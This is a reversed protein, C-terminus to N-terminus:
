EDIGDRLRDLHSLVVSLTADADVYGREYDAYAGDVDSLVDAVVEDLPDTVGDGADTAEPEDTM